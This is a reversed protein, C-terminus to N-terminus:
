LTMISELLGFLASLKKEVDGGDDIELYVRSGGGTLEMVTFRNTQRNGYMTTSFEIKGQELDSRVSVGKQLEIIDNIANMVWTHPQLYVRENPNMVAGKRSQQLSVRIFNYGSGVWRHLNPKQM